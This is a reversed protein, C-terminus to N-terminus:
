ADAGIEVNSPGTQDLPWEFCLHWHPHIRIAYRGAPKGGMAELRHRALTRLSGLDPVAHLMALWNAAQHEIGRFAAVPRGAAFSETERSRYSVIM